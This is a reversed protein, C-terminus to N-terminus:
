LTRTVKQLFPPRDPDFGKARAAAEIAAYAPVLMVVPDLVPHDDGIWPLRSAPGGACFIPEGAATLDEVLGDVTAATGDDQRLALVPTDAAIAARPGHRLEAASYGLAPLRVTESLKLALERAPGFGYGRAAVYAARADALSRGWASWDLTKAADLRDAVGACARDLGDDGAIRAVFRAGALMSSVVSKTAAVSLEPGARLPVVHRAADAVPSNTENVFAVTLAGAKDAARTAAVLDPSGGSQSIVVFLAGALASPRDYSTVVSPAAASVAIGLHTEICYRLHVGAHGSSGRGCIVAFRPALARVAGAAADTSAEDAMLRRAAEPIEAIERAMLTGTM